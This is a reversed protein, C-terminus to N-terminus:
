LWHSVYRLFAGGSMLVLVGLGISQKVNHQRFGMIASALFALTVLGMSIAGILIETESLNYGYVNM